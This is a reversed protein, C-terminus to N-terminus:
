KINTYKIGKNKKIVYISTLVLGVFMAIYVLIGDFTDPSIVDELKEIITKNPEKVGKDVSDVVLNEGDIKINLNLGNDNTNFYLTDEVLKTETGEVVNIEKRVLEKGETDKIILTHKGEEVNEFTFYGDKDTKYTRPTSHLEVTYDKLGNGDKDKINGSINVKKLDEVTVLEVKEPLYEYFCENEIECNIEDKLYIFLYKDNELLTSNGPYTPPSKRKPLKIPAFFM